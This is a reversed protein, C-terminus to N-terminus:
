LLDGHGANCIADFFYYKKTQSLQLLSFHCLVNHTFDAKVSIFDIKFQHKNLLNM